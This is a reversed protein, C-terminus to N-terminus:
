SRKGRKPRRLKRAILEYRCDKSCGRKIARKTKHPTFTAGCVECTKTVPHKTHEMGHQAATLIELNEIRNDTKIGNKHHVIEDRRLKRGLHVEMVHRHASQRKGRVKVSRYRTTTPDVPRGRNACKVNCFTRTIKVRQNIEWQKHVLENGCTLCNM